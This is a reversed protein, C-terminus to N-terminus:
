GPEKLATHLDAIVRASDENIQKESFRRVDFGHRRLDLDRARDDQFAVSGRHYRYSDTEVALRHSRWLFDVTWRGIRVNVEPSPLDARRCLTLFDEELDSRTRTTEVGADLAYGALEAQRIARRHLRPPVCSKLDAVTRAPTTVPIGQRHTVLGNPVLGDLAGENPLHTSQIPKTSLLSSCRHLRIGKRSRRGSHSPISVDIPGEMPRLLEWLAAASRHSLV